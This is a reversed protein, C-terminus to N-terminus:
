KIITKKGNIIYIGKPLNTADTNPMRVGTLTYIGKAQAGTTTVSSIGADVAKQGVFAVYIPMSTNEDVVWKVDIVMTAQGADSISSQASNIAVEANIQTPTGELFAMSQAEMAEFGYGGAQENLTVNTLNIDGLQLGSFSFNYLTFDIANSTSDGGATTIMKVQQDPFAVAADPNEPDIPNELDIPATLSVYVTGTYTGAVKAASQALAASALCFSACLTLLLKKM